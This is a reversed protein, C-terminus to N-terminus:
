YFPSPSQVMLALRGGRKSLLITGGGFFHSHEWSAEVRDQYVYDLALQAVAVKRNRKHTDRKIVGAHSIEFKGNDSKLKGYYRTM